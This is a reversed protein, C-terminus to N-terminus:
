PDVVAVISNVEEVVPNRCASGDLEPERAEEEWLGEQRSGELVERSLILNWNIADCEVVVHAVMDSGIIDLLLRIITHEHESQEELAALPVKFLVDQTVTIGLLEELFKRRKVQDRANVSDLGLSTDIDCGGITHERALSGQRRSTVRGVEDDIQFQRRSM